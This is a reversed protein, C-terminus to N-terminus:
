IHLCMRIKTRKTPNEISDLLRSNQSDLGGEKYGRYDKSKCRMQLANAATVCINNM